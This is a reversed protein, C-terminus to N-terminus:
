LSLYFLSLNKSKNKTITIYQNYKPNTGGDVFKKTKNLIWELIYNVDYSRYLMEIKKLDANFQPQTMGIQEEKCRILYYIKIWTLDDKETDTEKFITKNITQNKSHCYESRQISPKIKISSNYAKIM